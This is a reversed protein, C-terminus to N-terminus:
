HAEDQRVSIVGDPNLHRVCPLFGGVFVPKHIAMADIWDISIADVSKPHETFDREPAQKAIQFVGDHASEFRNGIGKSAFDPSRRVLTPAQDHSIVIRLISGVNQHDSTSPRKSAGSPPPPPFAPM